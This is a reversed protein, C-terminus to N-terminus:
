RSYIHILFAADIPIIFHDCMNLDEFNDVFYFDQTYSLAM